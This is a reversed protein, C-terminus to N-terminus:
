AFFFSSVFQFKPMQLTRRNEAGHFGVLLRRNERPIFLLDLPLIDPSPQVIIRTRSNPAFKKWDIQDLREFREIPAQYFEDFTITQDSCRFKYTSGVNPHTFTQTITELRYGSIGTAQQIEQETAGMALAEQISDHLETRAIFAQMEASDASAALTRLEELQKM